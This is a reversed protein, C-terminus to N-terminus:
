SSRAVQRRPPKVLRLAATTLGAHLMESQGRPLPASTANMPERLDLTAFNCVFEGTEVVFTVADKRRDSSFAVMNPRSLVANVFSYPSLNVERKASM